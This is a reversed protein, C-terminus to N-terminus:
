RATAREQSVAQRIADSYDKLWKRQLSIAAARDDPSLTNLFGGLDDQSVKGLPSHDQMSKKIGDVTKAFETRDTGKLTRALFDAADGTDGVDIQRAAYEYGLANPGQDASRVGSRLMGLVAQDLQGVVGPAKRESQYNAIKNRIKTAELWRNNENFFRKDIRNLVGESQRAIMFEERFFKRVATGTQAPKQYINRAAETLNVGTGAAPGLVTSLLGYTLDSVMGIGGGGIFDSGIRQMIQSTDKGGGVAYQTVSQDSGTAWDKLANYVEGTVIMALSFRTFPGLNGKAAEKVVENYIFGLQDAGWTKFKALQRVWPHSAWWIRESALTLPFQTNQVMRQMADKLEANSLKTGSAVKRALEADTMNTLKQVRRESASLPDRLGTASMVSELAEAIRGRPLGAGILRAMDKQLGISAVLASTVRNEHEIASFPRLAASTLRYLRADSAVDTLETPLGVAGTREIRSEIHQASKLWLRAIPPYKAMAEVVTGPGFQITNTIRQGANRIVSLPSFGLKTLTEWNSVSKALRDGAGGPAPDFHAKLWDFLATAAKPHETGILTMASKANEFNKGWERVAEVFMANRHLLSPLLRKANFNVYEEPMLTRFSELYPNIGRLRAERWELIQGLATKEDKAGGNKVIERAAAMVRSSALGHVKADEQLQRGAENPVQPFWGGSGGTPKKGSRTKREIGLGAAEHMSRDAVSGARDGIVALGPNEDRYM